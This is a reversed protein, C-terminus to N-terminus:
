LVRRDNVPRAWLTGPTATVPATVPAAAAPTVPEVADPEESEGIARLLVAVFALTLPLIVSLPGHGGSLRAVTYTSLAILCWTSLPELYQRALRQAWEDDLETWLVGGAIVTLVLLGAAVPLSATAVNDLFESM